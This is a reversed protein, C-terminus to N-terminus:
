GSMPRSPRPMPAITRCPAAAVATTMPAHEDARLCEPGQGM